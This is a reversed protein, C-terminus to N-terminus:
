EAPGCTCFIMATFAGGGSKVTAGVVGECVTAGPADATYEMVTASEPLLKLPMTVSLTEPSGVPAVPLKLGVVTVGPEPLAVEVSVTVVGATALRVRGFRQGIAM